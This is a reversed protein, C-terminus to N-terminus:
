TFTFGPIIRNFLIVILELISKIYNLCFLQNGLGSIKLLAHEQEFWVKKPLCDPTKGM